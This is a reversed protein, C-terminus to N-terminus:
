LVNRIGPVRKLREYLQDMRSRNLLTIRVTYRCFRSSDTERVEWNRFPIKLERFVEEVATQNSEDSDADMIVKLDFTLPFKLKKGNFMM